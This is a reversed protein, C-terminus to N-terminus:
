TTKVFEIIRDLRRLLEAGHQHEHAFMEAPHNSATIIINKALFQRTSGKCEVRTEYRDLLDLLNKYDLSKSDIDDIIVNEHADYGEWWKGSNGSKRYFEADKFEDHAKKSKGTGTDGWYWSVNPKWQRKPEEYKLISEALKIQQLNTAVSVVGKMGAGLIIQERVIEIDTRNGQKPCDGIEKAEENFPKHKDGKTYPGFIYTRNEEPSGKSIELHWRPHLKRVAEFSRANEFYIYGQYHHNGTDGIEPAYCIYKAQLTEVFQKDEESYNNLTFCFARVKILPKKASM